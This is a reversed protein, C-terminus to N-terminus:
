AENGALDPGAALRNQSSLCCPNLIPQGGTHIPASFTPAQLRGIMAAPSTLPYYGLGIPAPLTKFQKKQKKPSSYKYFQPHATAITTTTTAGYNLADCSFLVVVM